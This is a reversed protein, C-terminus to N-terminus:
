KEVLPRPFVYNRDLGTSRFLQASRKGSIKSGGTAEIVGSSQVRRRFSKVPLERDLIIEFIKQLETLTFEEPLLEVPLATYSAKAQLREFAKELLLAHDFALKKTKTLKVPLWLASKDFASRDVVNIDILAYYLSTVSWGRPDRQKNGITEVQELYPSSVGTKELLKRYATDGLSADLKLNIFGGPLSHQGIAPHETREVLLVSLENEIIAFIAMDVSTLPIDYDHISYNKLFEKETM